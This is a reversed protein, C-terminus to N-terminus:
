SSSLLANRLNYSAFSTWFSMYLYKRKDSESYEQGLGGGGLYEKENLTRDQYYKVDEKIIIIIIRGAELIKM